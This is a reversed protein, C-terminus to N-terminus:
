EDPLSFQSLMELRRVGEHCASRVHQWQKDSARSYGASLGSAIARPRMAPEPRGRDCYRFGFYEITISMMATYAANIQSLSFSSITVYYQAALRASGTLVKGSPLTLIIRAM